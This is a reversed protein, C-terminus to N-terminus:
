FLGKEHILYSVCNGLVFVILIFTTEAVRDGIIYGLGFGITLLVYPFLFDKKGHFLMKGFIAGCLFIVVYSLFANRIITAIIFGIIIFLVFSLEVWNMLFEFGKKAKM